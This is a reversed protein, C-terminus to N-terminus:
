LPADILPTVALTHSWVSYLSEATYTTARPVRLARKIRYEGNNSAKEDELTDFDTLDSEIDM